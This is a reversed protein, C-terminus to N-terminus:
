LKVDSNAKRYVEVYKEAATKNGTWVDAIGQEIDGDNYIVWESLIATIVEVPLVLDITKVCCHGVTTKILGDGVVELNLYDGGGNGEVQLKDLRVKTKTM